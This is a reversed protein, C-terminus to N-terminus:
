TEHLPSLLDSFTQTLRLNFLRNLTSDCMLLTFNSTSWHHSDNHCQSMTVHSDHKLTAMSKVGTVSLDGTAKVGTVSLDGTSKVGTVSLDSTAVCVRM